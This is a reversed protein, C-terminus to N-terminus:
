SLTAMIAHEWYAAGSGRVARLGFIVRDSMTTTDSGPGLMAAEWGTVDQLAIARAASDTRFVYFTSTNQANGVFGTTLWGNPIVDISFDQELLPNDQGYNLRAARIATVAPGWLNPPVVVVFQRAAGNLPSGTQDQYTYSQQVVGMIAAVMEQQTPFAPNSVALAPVQASTLINNNTFGGGWTHNSAFLANGDLSTPNTLLVNTALVDWHQRARTGLEAMRLMIQGSKDFRFDNLTFDLTAEYTKNPIKLENFPMFKTQRMGIWERVQPPPGLTRYDEEPQNSSITMGIRTAFGAGVDDELPKFLAALYGKVVMESYTHGGKSWTSALQETLGPSFRESFNRLTQALAKAHDLSPDKGDESGLKISYPPAFPVGQASARARIRGAEEALNAIRLLEPGGMHRPFISRLLLGEDSPQAWEQHSESLEALIRRDSLSLRALKALKGKGKGGRELELRELVRGRKETRNKDADPDFGRTIGAKVRLGDVKDLKGKKVDEDVRSLAADREDRMLRSYEAHAQEVTKGDDFQDRAWRKKAGSAVLSEVFARKKEDQEKLIEIRMAARDVPAAPALPSVPEAMKSMVEVSTADDAPGATIFSTEYLKSKSWVEAPGKVTQGNVELEAGEKIETHVLCRIGVSATWPFGQDALKQVHAADVTDLFFGELVLGDKPDVEGKDAVAVPRSQHDLLMPLRFGEALGEIGALDIMMQGWWRSFQVGTYAKMRFRRPGKSKEDQAGLEVSVSLKEERTRQAAKQDLATTM